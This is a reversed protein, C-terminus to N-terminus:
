IFIFNDSGSVKGGFIFPVIYQNLRLQYSVVGTSASTYQAASTLRRYHFAFPSVVGMNPYEFGIQFGQAFWFNGLKDTVQPNSNIKDAYRGFSRSTATGLVYGGVLQGYAKGFILLLIILYKM